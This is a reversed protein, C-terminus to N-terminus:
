DKVCRVSYGAKRSGFSRYIGDDESTIYRLITNDKHHKDPTSTWFFCAEGEDLFKTDNPVKRGGPEAQFGITNDGTWEEFWQSNYKLKRGVDGSANYGFEDADEWTMGLMRELKKWEEDTAVHWGRPCASVAASWNYLVGYLFYNTTQSAVSLRDYEYNYVYYHETTDSEESPLSVDPLYALNEAMWLKGAIEITKYIRGDRDDRFENEGPIPEKKCSILSIVLIFLFAKLTQYPKIARQM